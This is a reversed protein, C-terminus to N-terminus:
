FHSQSAGTASGVSTFTGTAGTISQFQGTTSRITDGTIVIGSLQTTFRGNRFNANAGTFTTGSAVGSLNLTNQIVVANFTSLGTATTTGFAATGSVDLNGEIVINGSITDGTVTAYHQNLYERFQTFTIKKNRLLPDVEFVHVLTM